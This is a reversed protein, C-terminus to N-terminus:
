LEKGPFQAPEACGFEPQALGFPVSGRKYFMSKLSPGFGELVPVLRGISPQYVAQRMFIVTTKVSCNKFVDLVFLSPFFFQLNKANLPIHM